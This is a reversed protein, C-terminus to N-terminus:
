HRRTEVLRYGSEEIQRNIVNVIDATSSLSNILDAFMRSIAVTAIPLTDTGAPSYPLRPGLVSWRYAPPTM